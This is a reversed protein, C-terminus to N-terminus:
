PYTEGFHEAIEVVDDIGIYDDLNIDYISDYYYGLSNPPGGPETGFHEAVAVIDDIGCYGDGTNDYPWRVVVINDVYTNDYVDIEDQVISVRGLLTYNGENMGTTNWSVTITISEGSLTLAVIETQIAENANTRPDANPNFAELIVTFNTEAFAGQNTITVDIDLAGGVNVISTHATVNTVALDHNPYPFMCPYLKSIAVSHICGGTNWTWQLGLDKDFFWLTGASDGSAGYKGSFTLDVSQLAFNPTAPIIQKLAGAKNLLYTNPPAGGTAIYNGNESITVTYFDDTPTQGSGTEKGPWYSWVPTSDSADWGDGGDDWYLLDCGTTDTPDDNVAVVAHGNCPMDVRWYGPKPLNYWWVWAGGWSLATNNILYITGTGTVAVYTGDGSIAVWFANIDVGTTYLPTGDTPQWGPVGDRLHSFYHVMGSNYSNCVIYNGDQSIRVITEEPWYVGTANHEFHFIQNGAQDFLYLGQDTAAAVVVYGNYSNYKVDVSKSETGAWGGDYSTSVNINAKKWQLVGNKDFLWLDGTVPASSSRTGAAVFSANNDMAVSVVPLQLDQHWLLNGYFDWVYLNKDESGAAVIGTKCSVIIAYDLQTHVPLGPIYDGLEEPYFNQGIFNVHITENWYGELSFDGGPCPDLIIQYLDHSVLSANNHITNPEPELIHTHEIPVSGMGGMEAADQIPDSIAIFGDKLDIGVVTVYHGGIRWWENTEENYQWFGLLLVVDQCRRLEEDILEITPREYTHEYFKWLLGKEQLYMNIGVQMDWVTTGSHLIGTRQGDTDFYWALDQVLPPVNRPDHDDWPGYTTVLPFGDSMEPPPIENPEYFSDLYWLSNAEAVPGCYSWKGTTPDTWGDQRQDFDPLGVQAYDIAPPKAYWPSVIVAYEVETFVTLAPDYAGTFNEFEDPTNQGAMNDILDAWEVIEYENYALEFNPNGPSGGPGPVWAAYIDHSAFQTDNHVDPPHPYGHPGPRVVGNGGAEANDIYPDSFAIQLNTSDVGAVTVYHGGVRRWKGTANDFQWFGLLLTVDECKEVEKEIFYFDPAKVLKVYFKDYLGHDWLYRELGRAMDVVKTGSHISGTRQGDTDFYWALDQVLPGVNKPDHDDWIGPSYSWVLPFNDNITPPPVPNPEYFSDLYWLSNAEAVPGCYSWKGTTPDTWGDQKQDFDPVGSPAYDTLNGPKWYWESQSVTAGKWPLFVTEGTNEDLLVIYEFGLDSVGPADCHFVIDVLTFNGPGVAVTTQGGVRVSGPLIHTFVLEWPSRAIVELATMQSSVFTLNFEFIAFPFDTDVAISITFNQCVNVEVISPEIWAVGTQGISKPILIMATLSFNLILLMVYLKMLNKMKMRREGIKNPAFDWNKWCNDSFSSYQVNENYINTSIFFNRINQEIV